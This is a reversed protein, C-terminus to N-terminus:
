NKKELNKAIQRGNQRSKGGKTEIKLREENQKGGIIKRAKKAVKGVQKM